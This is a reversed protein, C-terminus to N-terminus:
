IARETAPDREAIVHRTRLDLVNAAGELIDLKVEVAMLAERALALDREAADLREKMSTYAAVREQEAENIKHLRQELKERGQSKLRELDAGLKEARRLYHTAEAQARQLIKAAEDAKSKQTRAESRAAEIETKLERNRAQAEQLEDVLHRYHRPGIVGLGKLIQKM